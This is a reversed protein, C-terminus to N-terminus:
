IITSPILRSLYRVLHLLCHPSLLWRALWAPTGMLLMPAAIIAYTTHQVMHVWFFYREGLDHIPWDSAVWLELLGDSFTAVQFRTVIASGTPALRPGLRKM